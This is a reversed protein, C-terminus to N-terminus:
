KMLKAVEESISDAWIQYGKENLHLLDPMIDKTLEGKENLFKDGFDKYFVKSNDAYKSILANIEKNRELAGPKDTRPFIACLLIKTDPSKKQLETIIAKVGAATEAAPDNRHGTNNTGIMLVTLKPKLGDMNGQALRYLVHETRDGGIGFNVANLPAFKEAWIKKGGDKWGETISDGLFVLQAEGKKSQETYKAIKHETNKHLVPTLAKVTPKAAEQACIQTSLAAALSLALILSKPM